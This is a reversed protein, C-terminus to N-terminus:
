LVALPGFDGLLGGGGHLGDRHWALPEQVHVHIEDTGEGSCPIAAPVQESHYVARGAPNFRDRELVHLRGRARVSENGRPHSTEAHRALEGGVTPSLEGGRQPGVHALLQPDLVAEGGGIVGLSIAHNLPAVAL